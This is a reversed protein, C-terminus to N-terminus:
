RGDREERWVQEMVEHPIKKGGPSPWPKSAPWRKRPPVLIGRAVLRQQQESEITMKIARLYTVVQSSLSPHRIRIVVPQERFDSLLQSVHNAQDALVFDGEEGKCNESKEKPGVEEMPMKEKFAIRQDIAIQRPVPQQMADIAHGIAPHQRGEIDAHRSIRREQCSRETKEANLVVACYHANLDDDIKKGAKDDGSTGASQM